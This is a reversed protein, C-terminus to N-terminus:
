IPNMDIDDSYSSLKISSVFWIIDKMWFWSARTILNSPRCFCNSICTLLSVSWIIKTILCCSVKESNNEIDVYVSYQVSCIFHILFPRKPKNSLINCVLRTLLYNMSDERFLSLFIHYSTPLFQRQYIIWVDKLKMAVENAVVGLSANRRLPGNRGLAKNRVLLGMKGLLRM